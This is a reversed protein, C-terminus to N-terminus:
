SKETCVLVLEGYEDTIIQWDYNNCLLYGCNKFTGSDRIKLLIMQLDIIKSKKIKVTDPEDSEIIGKPYKMKPEKTEPVIYYAYIFRKTISSIIYHISMIDKGKELYPCDSTRIKNEKFLRCWIESHINELNNVTFGYKTPVPEDHASVNVITLM